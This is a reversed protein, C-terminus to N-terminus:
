DKHYHEPLQVQQRLYETIETMRPLIYRHKMDRQDLFIKHRGLYFLFINHMGWNRYKIRNMNLNIYIDKM